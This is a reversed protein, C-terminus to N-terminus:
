WQLERRESELRHIECVIVQGDRKRGPANYEDHLKGIQQTLQDIRAKAGNALPRNRGHEEKVDFLGQWGNEISQNIMAVATTAPFAALKSLQKAATSPTLSHRIERRHKKWEAWAQVFEPTQLSEPLVGEAANEIRPPASASSPEQNLPERNVTRSGLNPLSQGAKSGGKVRRQGAKGGDLPERNQDGKADANSSERNQVAILYKTSEPFEWVKIQQTHGTRKGTDRIFGKERLSDLAKRVTKENQETIRCITEISPYSKGTESAFNALAVLVFKQSSSFVEREFSWSLAKLSM